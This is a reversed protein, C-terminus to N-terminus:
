GFTFVFAQVGPDLFEIEFTRGEVQHKQRILQYVRYEQVEGTGDSASDVGNDVGPAIGNLTVKFRVPNGSKSPGLVMHLDRSHFRFVIKGSAAPLVASEAGVDWAGSLGWQNLAPNTPPTYTKRADHAQREPSAFREAQRYGIHTEPSQVDTGPAAEVGSASTSVTRDGLGTAGNEKLLEQIVGESESYEGEGFHDYRIREKGDIFYFAPWYQNNFSQWIRHNSDMAIPYTVKLDRLAQEVNTRKKEFSFEPTHVGIVVLGADKYKAAWSKVYPLPRLSNICSYTWFNVLVVKGRLSKASLPGSNLWAVAGGLDPLPGENPLARQSEAANAMPVPTALWAAVRAGGVTLVSTKLFSRRDMTSAQSAASTSWLKPLPRRRRKLCITGSAAPSSVTSMNARSGTAIRRVPRTSQETPTAKWPSRPCPLPLFHPWGSKWTTM